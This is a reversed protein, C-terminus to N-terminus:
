ELILKQNVNDFTYKGFKSLVSQGLLMPADLSNSISCPVNKIVRDGIKLSKIKFRKSKAISGDAFKYYAGQLWDSEKITGAKLLTSAVDPSISVDSAGSDFIFDIKLVDNLEVPLTYLTGDKKLSIHSPINNAVEIRAKFDKFYAQNYNKSGFSYLHIGNGLLLPNELEYVVIGNTSVIIKNGRKKIALTNDENRFYYLKDIKKSEVFNGDVMKEYILSGNGNINALDIRYLNDRDLVGFELGQTLATSGKCITVSISFDNNNLSFPAETFPMAFNEGNPVIIHLQRNAIEVKAKEDSVFHWTNSIEEADFKDEFTVFSKENKNLPKFISWIPMEMTTAKNLLKIITDGKDYITLEGDIYKKDIKGKFTSYLDKTYFYQLMNEEDPIGNIIPISSTIQGEENFYMRTGIEKGNIFKSVRQKMGNEYYWVCEGDSMDNTPNNVDASLFKGIYQVKGKKFYDKAIGSKNDKNYTIIRYYSSASEEKIVKWEEDFYIKVQRQALTTFSIIILIFMWTIKKMFRTKYKKEKLSKKQLLTHVLIIRYQLNIM